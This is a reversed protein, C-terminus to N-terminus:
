PVVVKGAVLYKDIFERAKAFVLATTEWAAASDLAYPLDLGSVRWFYLTSNDPMVSPRIEITYNHYSTPDDEEYSYLEALSSVSQGWIAIDYTIIWKAVAEATANCIMAVDEVIEEAAEQCLGVEEACILCYGEADMDSEPYMATLKELWHATSEMSIEGSM